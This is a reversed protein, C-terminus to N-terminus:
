QASENNLILSCIPAPLMNQLAKAHASLVMIVTLSDRIHGMLVSKHLDHFSVLRRDLVETPDPSPAGATLDTAIYCVSVEDTVSNSVDFSLFEHWSGATYGTEEKLERQAARLPDEDLLGGGEPLEWSYAELPFRHQGVMPVRGQDDIPLIGIARNKFHVVGYDGLMGNPQKVPYNTIRLWPNEFAIEEREVQWPGNQYPFKRQM